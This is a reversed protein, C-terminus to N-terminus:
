GHYVSRFFAGDELDEAAWNKPIQYFAKTFSTQISNCFPDRAWNMGTHVIEVNDFYLDGRANHIEVFATYGRFQGLVGSISATKREWGHSLSFDIICFNEITRGQYNSYVIVFFRARPDAGAAALSSKYSIAIDVPLSLNEEIKQPEYQSRTGPVKRNVYYSQPHLQVITLGSAPAEVSMRGVSSQYLVDPTAYGPIDNAIRLSTDQLFLRFGTMQSEAAALNWATKVADSFSAWVPALSVILSKQTLGRKKVRSTFLRKVKVHPFIFRDGSQIVKKYETDLGDPITIYSTRAM